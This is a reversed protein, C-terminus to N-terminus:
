LFHSCKEPPHLSRYFFM